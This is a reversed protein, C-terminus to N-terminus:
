EENTLGNVRVGFLPWPLLVRTVLLTLVRVKSGSYREGLFLILAGQLVSTPFFCFSLSVDQLGSLLFNFLLFFLFSPFLTFFVLTRLRLSSEIASALLTHTFFFNDYYQIIWLIFYIGLFLYINLLM